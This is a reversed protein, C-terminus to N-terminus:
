RMVERIEEFMNKLRINELRLEQIEREKKMILADTGDYEAKEIAAITFKGIRNKRIIGDQELKDITKPDVGWRESLEKRTLVTKM